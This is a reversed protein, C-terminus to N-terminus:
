TPEQRRHNMRKERLKARQKQERQRGSVVQGSVAIEDSASLHAALSKISPYRFFMDIIPIDRGLLKNLRGHVQIMQM